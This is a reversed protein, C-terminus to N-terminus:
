RADTARFAGKHTKEVGDQRYTVSYTYDGPSSPMFRIRFVRGDPSDCFGDVTRHESFGTRGFSGTLMPNTFPNPAVPSPVNAAVELYDYAEVTPTAQSFSVEFPAALLSVPLTFLAIAAQGLM